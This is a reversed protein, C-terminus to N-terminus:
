EFRKKLASLSKTEQMNKLRFSGLGEKYYIKGSRDDFVVTHTKAKPHEAAFDTKRQMSEPHMTIKDNKGRVITKVEILHKPSDLTGVVVDFEKNDGTSKGKVAKVLRGENAEAQRQVAATAPKHSSLAREVKASSKGGQASSAGGTSTWRGRDDRRQDPGGGSKQTTLDKGNSPNGELAAKEEEEAVVETEEEEELAAEKVETILELQEEDLGLFYRMFAEPPVVMEAAPNTVYSALAASRGQGITVREKESLAWLDTWRVSYNGTKAPPLIKYELCREVFPRIIQTEAYDHRRSQIYEFWNDRDETSALEGRESGTLIRKPIGTASSIMQLQIDVHSSPDAVQQALSEFSVGENILIRRLNHEFEDVQDQLDDRVEQTMMYEPDIKGQYGPRAGRWFMEASGGVIKELDMLRNFVAKLRSTGVVESEMLGWVVHIVRTHHVFITSQGGTGSHTLTVTYQNPLGFRESTATNDWEQVVAATQGLPKVYLLKRVGPKVPMRWGEAHPVDDLGLLLVGYEGLSALRDLRIFRSRLALRDHLELWAKEFATEEDDGMELVDFGNLWTADVPRDVVARAIDQREYQAAFKDYTLEVPYGLSKYLDRDGGFQQGLRAALTARSVVASLTQFFGGSDRKAAGSSGGNRKM